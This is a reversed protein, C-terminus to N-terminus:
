QIVIQVRLRQPQSAWEGSSILGQCVCEIWAFLSIRLGNFPFFDYKANHVILNGIPCLFYIPFYSIAIRKQKKQRKMKNIQEKHQNMLSMQYQSFHRKQNLLVFATSALSSNIMVLYFRMLNAVSCLSYSIRNAIKAICMMPVIVASYTVMPVRHFAHTGNTVDYFFICWFIGFFFLWSSSFFFSVCRPWICQSDLASSTTTKINAAALIARDNRIRLFQWLRYENCPEHIRPQSDNKM